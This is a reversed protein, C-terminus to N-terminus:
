QTNACSNNIASKTFPGVIGDLVLNPAPTILENLANQLRQVGQKTLPGFIGDVPGAAEDYKVALIRNIHSQLIDVQSINGKNYSDYVGNRVGNRLNDAIILESPCLQGNNIVESISVEVIPTETNKEYECLSQKHRGFSNYNTASSDKCTYKVSSPKSKTDKCIFDTQLCNGTSCNDKNFNIWGATASWANGIFYGENDIKVNYNDNTACNSGNKCSFSVWGLSEGWAYGSLEAESNSNCSVDVGFNNMACTNNTSCSMNVWGFYSSWAYGSIRDDDIDISGTSGPAFNISGFSGDVFDATTNNNIIESAYVSGLPLACLM